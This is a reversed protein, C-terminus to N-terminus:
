KDAYIVLENCHVVLNLTMTAGGTGPVFTLCSSIRAGIALEFPQLVPFEDQGFLFRPVWKKKGGMGKRITPCRRGKVKSLAAFIFFCAERHRYDLGNRGNPRSVHRGGGFRKHGQYWLYHRAGLYHGALEQSPQCASRQGPDGVVNRRLNTPNQTAVCKM